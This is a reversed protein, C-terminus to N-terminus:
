SGLRIFDNRIWGKAGSNPFEVQYWVFGDTGNQYSIIRVQDGPLGYHRNYFNMGPGDRVNIQADPHDAQLTASNATAGERQSNSSRDPEAQPNQDSSVSSVTPNPTVASPQDAKPTSPSPQPTLLFFTHETRETIREAPPRVQPQEKNNTPSENQHLAIYLGTSASIMAAAGALLGPLTQWWKQIEDPDGPM